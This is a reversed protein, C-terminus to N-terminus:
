GHAHSIGAREGTYGVLVGVWWSGCLTLTAVTALVRVRLSARGRSGVADVLAAGGAAMVGAAPWGFRRAVATLVGAGALPTLVLVAHRPALERGRAWWTGKVRGFRFYQRGLLAISPRALYGSKLGGDFWVVMGARRYRQNLEFDENLAVQESWGGVRLLEDRRFVGMWVTDAPGSVSTRRYRSLGTSWRNGLARAIARDVDGDSRPIAIQAGGVVGVDPRARLVALCREVYAPEIRSRADVRVVVEGAAVALARNLGVSTRRVRNDVVTLRLGRAKAERRATEVSADTSGGDALVVEMAGVGCTQAAIAELCGPLDQEENWAPIVVTVFPESAGM